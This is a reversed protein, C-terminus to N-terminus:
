VGAGIEEEVRERILRRARDTFAIKEALCNELLSGVGYHGTVDAMAILAAYEAKQLHMLHMAKAVVFLHRAIPAKIEALERRFDEM